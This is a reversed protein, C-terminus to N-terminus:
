CIKCFASSALLGVNREPAEFRSFQGDQTDWKEPLAKVIKQVGWQTLDNVLSAREHATLKESLKGKFFATLFADHHPNGPTFMQKAIELARSKPILAVIEPNILAVLVRNYRGKNMLGSIFNGINEGSAQSLIRKQLLSGILDDALPAANFRANVSTYLEDIAAPTMQVQPYKLLAAIKHDQDVSM